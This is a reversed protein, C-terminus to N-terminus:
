IIEKKGTVCEYILSKKYEELKIILKEKQSIVNEIETTKTDLIDNIIKQESVPPLVILLEKYKDAGINEITAQMAISSKWNNYSYSLTYFYLFKSNLFSNTTARILYGAFCSLGVNKEYLYTKGVTAGSRAFLVDGERLIFPEAKDFSLSQIEEVKSKLNNNSIIDTIRIYRPLTEDYPIGTENAGYQLANRLLTKFKRVEWDEPIEGIWEVGSDKMKVNKDLGKTVTETILAQKYEKLKDIQKKTLEITKDIKSTKEDLYNAIATQQIITPKLYALNKLTSISVGGILGSMNNFFEDEFNPSCLFYYLYDNSNDSSYFCCLKNVFAVSQNLKTKKKGASGGEICMLVSNKNAVKFNINDNKIYLGNNYNAQNTGLIIDKTSIYPRAENKDQYLDKESDKISNGTYLECLNKFRVVEWDEPIDGIWEVGSNKLKRM